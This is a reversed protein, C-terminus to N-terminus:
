NSPLAQALRVSFGYSQSSSYMRLSSSIFYFSYANSTGYPTSSWYYGLTGVSNVSSGSFYGAAPLLVCGANEFVQWQEDTLSVYNAGTQNWNTINVADTIVADDPCLLTYGVNGIKVKAFHHGATGNVTSGPRTTGIISEWDAKSPVIWPGGSITPYGSIEFEFQGSSANSLASYTFLDVDLRETKTTSKVYDKQDEFFTYTNNEKKLNGCAFMLIRGNAGQFRGSTPKFDADALTMNITQIHNAQLSVNATTNKQLYTGDTARVTLQLQTSSFEPLAIWFKTATSANLQVGTGCDLTVTRQSAQSCPSMVAKNGAVSFPGNLATNDMATVSITQVTKSGKLNLEMVGCINHFQLSTTNSKAYMPLNDIHNATYQQVAPLTPTGSNYISAPYYATYYGEGDPNVDTQASTVFNAKTADTEDPAAQYDQGNIVIPDNNDWLVVDNQGLHTKSDSALQEISGSFKSLRQNNPNTPNESLTDDKECSVAFCAAAALLFIPFIKKRM